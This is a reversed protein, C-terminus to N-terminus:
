KRKVPPRRKKATSAGANGQSANPKSRAIDVIKGDVEVYCATGTQQALKLASKAARKLADLAVPATRKTNKARTM